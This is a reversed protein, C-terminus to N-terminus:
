HLGLGSSTDALTVGAWPENHSSFPYRPSSHPFGKVDTNFRTTQYGKCRLALPRGEAQRVCGVAVPRGVGCKESSGKGEQIGRDTECPPLAGVETGQDARFRTEQGYSPTSAWSPCCLSVRVKLILFQVHRM